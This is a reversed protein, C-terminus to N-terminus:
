TGHNQSLQSRSVPQSRTGGNKDVARPQDLGPRSLAAPPSRSELSRVVMSTTWPHRNINGNPEPCWSSSPLVFPDAFYGAHVPTRYPRNMAQGTEEPRRAITAVSPAGPRPQIRTTISGDGSNLPM